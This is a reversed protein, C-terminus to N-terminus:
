DGASQQVADVANSDESGKVKELYATVIEGYACQRDNYEAPYVVDRHYDSPRGQEGVILQKSGCSNCYNSLVPNLTPCDSNCCRSMLPSSPFYVAYSGNSRQVIKINRIVWGENTEVHAYARLRGRAERLVHIDIDRFVMRIVEGKM